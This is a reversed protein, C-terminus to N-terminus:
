GQDFGSPEASMALLHGFRRSCNSLLLSRVGTTGRRWM